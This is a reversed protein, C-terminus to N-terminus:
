MYGWEGSGAGASPDGGSSGGGGGFFSKSMASMPGYSGALGKGFSGVAQSTALNGGAKAMAIKNQSIQANLDFMQEGMQLNQNIGLLNVGSQGSIQGYGGQVGSGLQSGSTTANNLGVARARQANRLVEMSQRHANLEMAQRRVQDQQMELGANAASYKAQEKAAQASSYASYAQMAMGGGAILASIPDM